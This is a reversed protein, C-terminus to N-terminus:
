SKTKNCIVFSISNNCSFSCIIRINVYMEKKYNVLVANQIENKNLHYFQLGRFELLYKDM